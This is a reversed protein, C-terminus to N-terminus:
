LKVFFRIKLYNEMLSLNTKQELICTKKILFDYKQKPRMKRIM